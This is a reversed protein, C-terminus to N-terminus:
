EHPEAEVAARSALLRARVGQVDRSPLAASIGCLDAESLAQELADLTAARTVRYRSSVISLERSVYSMGASGAAEACRDLEYRLARDPRVDLNYNRTSGDRLRLTMAASM